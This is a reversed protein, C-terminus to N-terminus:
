LKAIKMMVVYSFKQASVVTFNNLSASVTVNSSESLPSYKVSGTSAVSVMYAAFADNYGYSFILALYLTSNALTYSFSSNASSGYDAADLKLLLEDSIETMRNTLQQNTMSYPQFKPDSDSALTIMPAVSIDSYTNGSYTYLYVVIDTDVLFTHTKMENHNKGRDEWNVSTGSATKATLKMTSNSGDYNSPMGSLRYTGAKLRCTGITLNSDGTSATSASVTVKGNSAVTFTVGRYTNTTATNPLLNKAGLVSNERHSLVQSNTPAYPTFTKDKVSATTIMPKFVKGDMNYGPYVIIRLYMDRYTDLDYVFSPNDTSNNSACIWTDSGTSRNTGRVQLMYKNSGGGDAGGSLYYTKGNEFSNINIFSCVTWSISNSTGTYQGSTTVTGDANPTFTVGAGAYGNSDFRVLNKSGYVNHIDAIEAVEDNLAQTLQTVKADIYPKTHATEHEVITHLAMIIGGKVIGVVIYGFSDM